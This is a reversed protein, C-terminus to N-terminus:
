VMEDTSKPPGLATLVGECFGSGVDAASATTPPQQEQDQVQVQEFYAEPAINGPDSYDPLSGELRQKKALDTSSSSAPRKNGTPLDQSETDAGSALAPPLYKPKKTVTTPKPTLYQGTPALDYEPMIQGFQQAADALAGAQARAFEDALLAPDIQYPHGGEHEHAADDVMAMPTQKPHESSETAVVDEMGGNADVASSFQALGSTPSAVSDTAGDEKKARSKRPKRPKMLHVTPSRIPLPPDEPPPVVKEGMNLAEHMKRVAAKQEELWKDGKKRRRREEELEADSKWLLGYKTKRRHKEITRVGKGGPRNPIVKMKTAAGAASTEAQLSQSYDTEENATPYSQVDQVYAGSTDYVASTENNYALDTSPYTPHGQWSEPILGREPDYPAPAAAEVAAAAAAVAALALPEIGSADFSPVPAVPPAKAGGRKKTTVPAVVSDAKAKKTRNQKGSSTVPTSTSGNEAVAAVKGKGGKRGVKVQGEIKQSPNPVVARKGVVGTCEKSGCLCPQQKGTAQEFMEAYSMSKESTTFNELSYNYCLEEGAKIDRLAWFGLEYEKSAMGMTQYKRVEINPTCSHNIFRADNGRLGADIVEDEDYSLVFFDKKNVYVSRIRQFFTTLTIIEGRFDIIFEGDKVDEAVKVGWGREGVPCVRLEKQPRSALSGNTCGDGCPCQKGCLYNMTRRLCYLRLIRPVSPSNPNYLAFCGVLFPIYTLHCEGTGVIIGVDPHHNVIAIRLRIPQIDREDNLLFM